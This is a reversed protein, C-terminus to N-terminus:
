KKVSNSLCHPLIRQYVQWRTPALYRTYLYSCMSCDSFYYVSRRKAQRFDARPGFLCFSLCCCYCCLIIHVVSTVVMSVCCSMQLVRGCHHVLAVGGMGWMGCFWFVVLSVFVCYFCAVRGPLRAGFPWGHLLSSTVCNWM